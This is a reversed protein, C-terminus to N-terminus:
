DIPTQVLKYKGDIKKVNLETQLNFFGNYGWQGTVKDVNNCYGDAWTSAWNIMIRRNEPKGNTTEGNGIYYTMAAYSHPGFNMVYRDSDKDQVFTWHGDIKKLDGIRYYRGGESIVWKTTGDDATLPYM